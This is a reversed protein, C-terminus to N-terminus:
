KKLKNKPSRVWFGKHSFIMASIILVLKLEILPCRLRFAEAVSSVVAIVRKDDPTRTLLAFSSAAPRAMALLIFECIRPM